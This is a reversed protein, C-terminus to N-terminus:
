AGLSPHSSGAYLAPRLFTGLATRGLVETRPYTPVSSVSKWIPTFLSSAVSVRGSPSLSGTALSFSNGVRPLRRRHAVWRWLALPCGLVVTSSPTSLSSLLLAMGPKSVGTPCTSSRLTLLSHNPDKGWLGASYLSPRRTASNPATSVELAPSM